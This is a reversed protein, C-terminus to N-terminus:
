AAAAEADEQGLGPVKLEVGIKEWERVEERLATVTLPNRELWDRDIALRFRGPQHKLLVDPVMLHSRRRYILAAIRLAM